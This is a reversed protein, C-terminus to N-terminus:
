NGLPTLEIGLAVRNRHRNGTPLAPIPPLAGRSATRDYEGQLYMAAGGSFRYRLWLGVSVPLAAVAQLSHEPAIYRQYVPGLTAPDPIAAAPTYLGGALVVGAGGRGVHRGVVLAAESMWTDLDLPVRALFDERYLSLHEGRVSIAVLWPSTPDALELSGGMSLSADSVRFVVGTLDARRADGHLSRRAADLQLLLRRFLPIRVAVGLHTARADWTDTAASDISVTFVHGADWRGREFFATWSISGVTGTVAGGGALGDANTRRLVGGPPSVPITDPDDYGFLIFASSGDPTTSLLHTERRGLLRAHAAVTLRLPAIERGIGIAAGTASSRGIRSFRTNETRDRHLEAGLSLGAYWGGFRWGNAGELSAHTSGRGPSTTDVLVFPDPDYPSLVDTGTAFDAHRDAFTIRGAVAGRGLHRWGLGHLSWTTVGDPDLPRRYTGAADDRSLELRARSESVDRTIGAPNSATWFLGARPSYGLKWDEVATALPLQRLIPIIPRLPSWARTWDRSQSQAGLPAATAVAALALAGLFHRARRTM